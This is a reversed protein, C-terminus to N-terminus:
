VSVGVDLVEYDDDDKQRPAFITVNVSGGKEGSPRIKDYISSLDKAVSAAKRVDLDALGEDGIVDLCRLTKEIAARRVLELQEEIKEQNRPDNMSRSAVFPSVGFARATKNVGDLRAAFGIVQKVERPIEKDAGVQHMHNGRGIVKHLVSASLKKKAQEETLLLM